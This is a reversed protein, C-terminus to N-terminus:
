DMFQQCKTGAWRFLWHLLPLLYKLATKLAGGSQQSKEKWLYPISYLIGGQIMSNYELNNLKEKQLWKRNTKCHWFYFPFCLTDAGQAWLDGIGEACGGFIGEWGGWHGFWHCRCCWLRRGELTLARRAQEATRKSLLIKIISSVFQLNADRAELLQDSENMERNSLTEPRNM